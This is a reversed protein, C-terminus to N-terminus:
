ESEQQQQEQLTSRRLREYVCEGGTRRSADRALSLDSGEEDEEDDNPSVLRKSLRKGGFEGRM